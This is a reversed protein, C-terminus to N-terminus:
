LIQLEKPMSTLNVKGDESLYIMDEIRVGFEGPLYIGPEITVINGAVFAGEYTRTARPNEHVELGISHGLGHGFFDGYGAKEIIGRSVADVDMGRKGIAIAEIGALQAELVIHYVEKQKQSVTGVAFTRTMDANYGAVEAGFDITVFDGHQIQKHSPQGHPLSTTKGSVFIMGPAFGESGLRAMNYRHLALLEDEYAGVKIEPLIMKVAEETIWQAKKIFDVEKPEKVQRVNEIAEGLPVLTGKTLADYIRHTECSMTLNEFGITEYGKGNVYDAFTKPTPYSGEPEVVAYGLPTIKATTDEIYRSDTFCTGVGDRDVVVFGEYRKYETAYHMNYESTIVMADLNLARVINTMKELRTM